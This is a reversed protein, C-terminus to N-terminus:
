GLVVPRISSPHCTRFAMPRQSGDVLLPHAQLLALVAPADEEVMALQFLEKPSLLVVVAAPHGRIHPMRAPVAAM